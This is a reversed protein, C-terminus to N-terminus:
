EEVIDTFGLLPGGAVAEKWDTVARVNAIDGVAAGYPNPKTVIVPPAKAGPGHENVVLAIPNNAEEVQVTFETPVRLALKV